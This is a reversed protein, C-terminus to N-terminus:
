QIIQSFYVLTIDGPGSYVSNINSKTTQGTAPQLLVINHSTNLKLLYILKDICPYRCLESMTITRYRAALEYQEGCWLDSFIM